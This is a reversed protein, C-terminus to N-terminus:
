NWNLGSILGKHDSGPLPVTTCFATSFHKSHLIHDIPILPIGFNMPFTALFGHRSETMGSIAKMSQFDQSWPVINLDGVLIAPTNNLAIQRAVTSMQLNRKTTNNPFAPTLTHLTWVDIPSGSKEVRIKIVPIAECYIITDSVIPFRSYVSLGYCCNTHPLSVSYPHSKSLSTNLAKDWDNSVELVSILDCKSNIISTISESYNTNEHFVNFVGVRINSTFVNNQITPLFPFLQLVLIVCSIVSSITLWKSKLFLAFVVFCASLVLYHMSFAQLLEFIWIGFPFCIALTFLLQSLSAWKAVSNM